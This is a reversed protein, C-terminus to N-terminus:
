SWTDRRRQNNISYQGLRSGHPPPSPPSLLSLTRPEQAELFAAEEERERGKQANYDVRCSNLGELGWDIELNSLHKYWAERHGKRSMEAVFSLDEEVLERLTEWSTVVVEALLDPPPPPTSSTSISIMPWIIEDDVSFSNLQDM